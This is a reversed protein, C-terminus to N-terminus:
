KNLDNWVNDFKRYLEAPYEENDDMEIGLSMATLDLVNDYTCPKCVTALDVAARFAKAKIETTNMEHNREQNVAIVICAGWVSHLDTDCVVVLVMAFM